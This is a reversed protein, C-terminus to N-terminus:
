AYLWLLDLGINVTSSDRGAESAEQVFCVKYRPFGEIYVKQDSWDPCSMSPFVTPYRNDAFCGRAM